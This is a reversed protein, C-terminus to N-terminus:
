GMLGVTSGTECQGKKANIIVLKKGTNCDLSQQGENLKEIVIGKRNGGYFKHKM